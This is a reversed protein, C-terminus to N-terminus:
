FIYDTGDADFGKLRTHKMGSVDYIRRLLLMLDGDISM